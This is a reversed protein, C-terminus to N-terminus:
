GRVTGRSCIWIMPIVEKREDKKQFLGIPSLPQHAEGSEEETSSDGGDYLSRQAGYHFRASWCRMGGQYDRRQSVHNELFAM